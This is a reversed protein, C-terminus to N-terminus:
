FRKAAGDLFAVLEGGHRRIAGSPNHGVDDLIRLSVDVGGRNGHILLSDAVPTVRDESGHVLLLPCRLRSVVTTPAIDDYRYGIFRQVRRLVWWVVPPPVHRAVLFRRMLEGPHAFPAIAIAAILDDRRSAELITASGGVSHGLAALGDVDPRAKLWDLANGLDEAFRPMSAFTDDDSRGHCRADFLLVGYGAAHFLPALPLMVDASGSWGHVVAVAPAPATPPPVFWGFLAKANATPIAVQEFPLGFDAPTRKGALRRVAFAKRAIRRTGAEAALGLVAPVAIALAVIMGGAVVTM